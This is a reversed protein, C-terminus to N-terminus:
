TSRYILNARRKGFLKQFLVAALSQKDENAHHQHAAGIMHEEITYGLGDYMYGTLVVDLM